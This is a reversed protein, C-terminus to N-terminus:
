QCTLATLPDQLAVPEGFPHSDFIHASPSDANPKGFEIFGLDNLLDIDCTHGWYNGNGSVSLDADVTAPNFPYIASVNIAKANGDIDNLSIEAGFSDVQVSSIAIFLLGIPNGTIINRIVVASKLAEAGLFVGGSGAGGGLLSNGQIVPDHTLGAVVGASRFSNM